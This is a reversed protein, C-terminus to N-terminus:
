THFQTAWSADKHSHEYESWACEECIKKGPEERSDIVFDGKVGCHDCAVMPSTKRLVLGIILLVLLLFILVSIWFM